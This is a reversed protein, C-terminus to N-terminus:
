PQTHLWELGAAQQNASPLSQAKGLDQHSAATQTSVDACKPRNKEERLRDRLGNHYVVFEEFSLEGDGDADAKGIDLDVNTADPNTLRLLQALEDADISGSGDRDFQNFLALAQERRAEQEAILAEFAESMEQWDFQAQKSPSSALVLM